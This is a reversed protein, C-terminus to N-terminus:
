NSAEQSLMSANSTHLRKQVLHNFALALEHGYDKKRFQIEEKKATGEAVENMHRELRKIPGAIRNSLWFGYVIYFFYCVKILTAVYFFYPNAGADEKAMMHTALVLQSFLCMVIIYIFLDKQIKSAVLWKKKHFPIHNM